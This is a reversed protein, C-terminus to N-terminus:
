SGSIMDPNDSCQRLYGSIKENNLEEGIVILVDQGIDTYTIQPRNATANLLIWDKGAKVFGKIRYIRGYSSDAFLEATMQILKEETMSVHFYFLSRYQNEETVMMRVHAEPNYGCGAILAYDKDNWETWPKALIVGSNDTHNSGIETNGAADAYVSADPYRYRLSCKWQKLATNLYTVTQQLKTGATLETKSMIVMGAEAIQSVLLYESEKSMACEMGADVIAIVSGIEYWRDLPEEEMLNFFEDVDYIGSPEILVRDYGQMGMAILKTKLRRKHCDPDSATIMELGCDSGLAKSLVLMDVNIAGYDNEIIGIKKGTKILYRAYGNIFTTKGSGLFGTILDVKIM